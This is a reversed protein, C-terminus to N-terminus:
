YLKKLILLYAPPYVYFIQQLQMFRTRVLVKAKQVYILILM